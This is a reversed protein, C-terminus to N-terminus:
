GFFADSANVLEPHNEIISLTAEFVSIPMMYEGTKDDIGLFTAVFNYVALDFEHYHDLFIDRAMSDEMKIVQGDETFENFFPILKTTAAMLRIDNRPTITRNKFEVKVKFYDTGDVKLVEVPEFPFKKVMNEHIRFWISYNNKKVETKNADGLVSIKDDTVVAYPTQDDPAKEAAKKIELFKDLDNRDPM